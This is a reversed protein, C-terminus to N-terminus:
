IKKPVKELFETLHYCGKQQGILPIIELIGKAFIGRDLAKHELVLREYSNEFVVRHLGIEEGERESIINVDQLKDAIQLATGSPADKKQTHHRELISVKLGQSQFQPALLIMKQVLSSFNPSYLCFGNKEHVLQKVEDLQDYWGTTAIVIPRGLDTAIKVHDLVAEKSTADILIEAKQLEVIECSFEEALRYIERGLKGIGFLGLKYHM